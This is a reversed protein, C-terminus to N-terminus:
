GFRNNLVTVIDNIHLKLIGGWTIERVVPKFVVVTKLSNSDKGMNVNEQGDRYGSISGATNDVVVWM